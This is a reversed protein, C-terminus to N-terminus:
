LDDDSEDLWGFKGGAMKQIKSQPGGYTRTTQKSRYSPEPRKHINGNGGHGMVTPSGRGIMLSQDVMESSTTAEDMPQETQRDKRTPSIYTNPDFQSQSGRAATNLDTSEYGPLSPVSLTQDRVLSPASLNHDYGFSPVPLPQGHGFDDGTQTDGQRQTQSLPQSDLPPLSEPPQVSDVNTSVDAPISDGIDSQIPVAFTTSTSNGKKSGSGSSNNGRSKSGGSEESTDSIEIIDYGFAKAKTADARTTPKYSLSRVREKKINLSNSTSKQKQKPNGDTLCSLDDSPSKRKKAKNAVSGASTNRSSTPTSQSGIEQSNATRTRLAYTAPNTNATAKGKQKKTPRGVASSPHSTITEMVGFVDGPPATGAGSGTASGSRSPPGAEVNVCGTDSCIRSGMARMIAPDQLAKASPRIVRGSKRGISGPQPSSLDIAQQLPISPPRLGTDPTAISQVPAPREDRKKLQDLISRLTKATDDDVTPEARPTIAALQAKLDSIEGRTELILKRIDEMDVGNDPRVSGTNATTTKLGEVAQRLEAIAELVKGNEMSSETPMASVSTPSVIKKRIEDLTEQVQAFQSTSIESQIRRQLPEQPPPPAEVRNAMRAQMAKMTNSFIAVQEL